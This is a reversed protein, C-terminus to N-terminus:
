PHHTIRSLPAAQPFLANNATIIGGETFRGSVPNVYLALDIRMPQTLAMADLEQDCIIMRIIDPKDSYLYANFEARSIKWAREGAALLADVSDWHYGYATRGDVTYKLAIDYFQNISSPFLVGSTCVYQSLDDPM